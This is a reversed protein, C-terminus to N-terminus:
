KPGVPSGFPITYMFMVSSTNDLDSGEHNLYRGIFSILHTNPLTYKLAGIWRDRGSGIKELTSDLFLGNTLSCSANFGFKMPRKADIFSQQSGLSNGGSHRWDSPRWFFTVDLLKDDFQGRDSPARPNENKLFHGLGVMVAREKAPFGAPSMLDARNLRKYGLTIRSGFPFRYTLDFLSSKEPHFSSLGTSLVDFRPENFVPTNKQAAVRHITTWTQTHNRSKRAVTDETRAVAPLALWQILLFTMILLFTQRSIRPKM